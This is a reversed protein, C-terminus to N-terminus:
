LPDCNRRWHVLELAFPSLDRPVVHFELDLHIPRQFASLRSTRTL